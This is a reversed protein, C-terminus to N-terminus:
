IAWLRVQDQRGARHLHAERQPRLVLLPDHPLLPGPPLQGTQAAPHGAGTPQDRRQEGALLVAAARSENGGVCVRSCLLVFVCVCLGVSARLHIWDDFETVLSCLCTQVSQSTSWGTLFSLGATHLEAQHHLSKDMFVYHPMETTFLCPHCIIIKMM